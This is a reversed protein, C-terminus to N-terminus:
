SHSRDLNHVTLLSVQDRQAVRWRHLVPQESVDVGEEDAELGAVSISYTCPDTM